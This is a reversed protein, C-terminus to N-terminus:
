KVQKWIQRKWLYALVSFIAFYLMVWVGLSNREDKKADGVKELYNVIQAQTKENIGVRPMSSGILVKQPDNLFITLYNEGKSRIMMSLDPPIKGLYKELIAAPATAEVGDYAVGHCRGCAVETAEKDNLPQAISNLYAVIDNIAADGLYDFGYMAIKTKNIFAEIDKATTAKIEAQAAASDAKALQEHMQKTKHLNFTSEFAANAPNKIFAKLFKEDFITSVNSLDVPVAATSMEAMYRNQLMEFNKDVNSSKGYKNELDEKSAIQSYGAAKITHCAKCNQGVLVRGNEVNGEGEIPAIDKFKFDAAEMHPHMVSHAYPEIGFYTVLSIAVILLLSKMEKM